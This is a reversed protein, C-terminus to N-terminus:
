LTPLGISVGLAAKHGVWPDGVMHYESDLTLRSDVSGSVLMENPFVVVM